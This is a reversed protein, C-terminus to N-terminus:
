HRESYSLGFNDADYSKGNHTGSGNTICARREKGDKTRVYDLLISLRDRDPMREGNPDSSKYIRAAEHVHEIADSYNKFSWEHVAQDFM